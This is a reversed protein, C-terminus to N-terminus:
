EAAGPRLLRSLSSGGPLGRRGRRLYNDLLKWSKGDPMGVPPSEASPWRGLAKRYARAWRLIQAESLLPGRPAKHARGDPLGLVRQRAYVATLTRGTAVAAEGPYPSRAPADEGEDWADGRRRARQAESM